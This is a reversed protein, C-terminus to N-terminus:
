PYLEDHSLGPVAPELRSCTELQAISKDTHRPNLSPQLRVRILMQGAYPPDEDGPGFRRDELFVNWFGGAGFIRYWGARQEDYRKWCRIIVYIGEHTTRPADNAM